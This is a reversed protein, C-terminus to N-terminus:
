SRVPFLFTVLCTAGCILRDYIVHPDVRRDICFKM